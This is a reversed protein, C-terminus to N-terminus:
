VQQSLSNFENLFSQTFEKNKFELKVRYERYDKGNVQENVSESRKLTIFAFNDTASIETAQLLIYSDAKFETRVTFWKREKCRVIDIQCMEWFELGAIVKSVFPYVEFISKQNALWANEFKDINMLTSRKGTHNDMLERGISRSRHGLSDYSSPKDSSEKGIKSQNRAGMSSRSVPKTLERMKQQALWVEVAKSGMLLSILVTTCCFITMSWRIDNLEDTNSPLLIIILFALTYLLGMIFLLGSENYEARFNVVNFAICFLALIVLINYAYLFGSVTSTNGSYECQQIQHKENSIWKPLSKVQTSWISLMIIQLAILGALFAYLKKSISGINIRDRSNFIIFVYMNKVLLPAATLIFGMLPLWIKLTCITRTLNFLPLTTALYLLCCGFLLVLTYDVGVTRVVKNKRNLLLFIFSVISALLGLAMLCLVLIGSQDYFSYVTLIQTRPGDWPPISQGGYFVRKNDGYYSFSTANPNTQGFISYNLYVGTQYIFQYANTVEGYSNLTMNDSTLGDYGINAFLTWNMRDQAKRQVLMDLTLDKDRALLNHFGHLLMMACDYGSNVGFWNIFDFGPPGVQTETSYNSTAKYMRENLDNYLPNSGDPLLPQLYIFGQVITYYDAGYTKVPDTYPTPSNLGMWVINPGTWGMQALMYLIDCTFPTQGSVFIYRANVTHLSRNAYSILNQNPKNPLPLIAAVTIGATRLTEVTKLGVYYGVSDQNQIIMAIRTVNWYTLLRTIHNGLAVAPITRWFYSYKYRDALQPSVVNATCYPIQVQSSSLAQAVSKATKSYEYDIIASINNNILDQVMTSVAYGGSNGSYSDQIGPTFSGCNSFQKLNVHIGPLITPNANVDDIALKVALNFFYAYGALNNINM